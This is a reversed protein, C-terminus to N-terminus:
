RLARRMLKGVANKPIEEIFEVIRPVKFTAMEDQCFDIIEQKGIKGKYDDKLSIFAKITEGRYADAVGVVAVEKVAPHKMIVGEIETPAVNYGSAIILDKYRDVFYFFSDDDM